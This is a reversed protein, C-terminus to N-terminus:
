RNGLVEVATKLEYIAETMKDISKVVEIQQRKINNMESHMVKNEANLEFCFSAIWIIGGFMLAVVAGIVAKIWEETTKM